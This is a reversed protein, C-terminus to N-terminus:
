SYTIALDMPFFPNHDSNCAVPVGSTTDRGYVISKTLMILCVQMVCKFPILSRYALRAQRLSASGEELMLEITEGYGKRDGVMATTPATTSRLLTAKVGFRFIWNRSMNMPFLSKTKVMNLVNMCSMVSQERCFRPQNHSNPMLYAILRVGHNLIRSGPM